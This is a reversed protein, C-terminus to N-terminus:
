CGVVALGDMGWVRWKKLDMRAVLGDVGGDVPGLHRPRHAPERARTLPVPSSSQKIAQIAPNTQHSIKPTNSVYGLAASLGSGMCGFVGVSVWGVGSQMPRMFRAARMAARWPRGWIVSSSM